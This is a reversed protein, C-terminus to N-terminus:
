KGINELWRSSFWGFKELSKAHIDGIREPEIITLAIKYGKFNPGKTHPNGIARPWDIAAQPISNGHPDWRVFAGPGMRPQLPCTRRTGPLHTHTHASVLGGFTWGM